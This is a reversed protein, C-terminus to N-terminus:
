LSVRRYYIFSGLKKHSTKKRLIEGVSNTVKTTDIRCVATDRNLGPPIPADNQVM